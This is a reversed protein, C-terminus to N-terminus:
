LAVSYPTRALADPAVSYPLWTVRSRRQRMPRALHRGGAHGAAMALRAAECGALRGAEGMIPRGSIRPALRMHACLHARNWQAKAAMALLIIAGVIFFAISM